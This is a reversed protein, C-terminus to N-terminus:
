KRWSPLMSPVEDIAFWTLEEGDPSVLFICAIWELSIPADISVSDAGVEKIQSNPLEVALVYGQGAERLELSEEAALMSLIFEHEEEGLESHTAIFESTAAFLTPISISTSVFLAELEDVSVGVYGRM